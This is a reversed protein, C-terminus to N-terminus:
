SPYPDKRVADIRSGSGPGPQGSGVGDRDGQAPDLRVTRGPDGSACPAGAVGAELEAATAQSVEALAALTSEVVSAAYDAQRALEDGTFDLRREGPDVEAFGAEAIWGALHTGTDSRGAADM